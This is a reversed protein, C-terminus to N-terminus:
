PQWVHANGVVGPMQTLAAAPVSGFLKQENLKAPHTASVQSPLLEHVAGFPVGQAACIQLPEVNLPAVQWDGPPHVGNEPGHGFLKAQRFAVVHRVVHLM